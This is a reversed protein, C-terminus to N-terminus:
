ACFARQFQMTVPDHFAPFPAFAVRGKDEGRLHLAIVIELLCFANEVVVEGGALCLKEGIGAAVAGVPFIQLIGCAGNEM